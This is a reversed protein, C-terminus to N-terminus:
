DQQDEILHPATVSFVKKALHNGLAFEDLTGHKTGEEGSCGIQSLLIHDRLISLTGDATSADSAIVQLFKFISAYAKGGINLEQLVEVQEVLVITYGVQVRVIIQNLTGRRGHIGGAYVKGRDTFHGLHTFLSGSEDKSLQNLSYHLCHLLLQGHLDVHLHSM